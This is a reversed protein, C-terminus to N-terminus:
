GLSPLGLMVRAEAPTAPEMELETILGVAREVLRVNTALEGRRFYINDELGVRMHGGM